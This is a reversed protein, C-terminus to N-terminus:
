QNNEAKDRLLRYEGARITLKTMDFYEMLPIIFKRSLGTLEKFSAPNAKEERILLGKYDNRLKQIVASHFFLDASIKVLLGEKLMVGLVNDIQAKRDAFKAMVEKVSPPTLAADLYVRALAGRLDEQEGSLDVAHGALRVHEREVVLGGGKEMDQMVLHFLKASVPRGLSNKLEEKQLGEKLPFKEHYLKTQSMIRAQLGKYLGFALARTEEKDILVAQKKAFMEALINKMMTQHLGTRVALQRMTIGTLGARALMVATREQDTGDRLVRFDDGTQELHRKHKVAQSDLIMGGGITTMPSYSRIVFRDRTMVVAPSELVLQAFANEGPELEDQDMLVVRTILESAGVHLRVLARNKLKKGAAPLYELSVDLRRSPSLTAPHALVDGRLIAAKEIGQLNVATRQGAEAEEVQRNHVQLGRVKAMIQGPLIAVEEGVRLSGSLLTGTVVTGFGKMTFVRDIPLRFIGNDYDDEIQDTVNSIAQLLEPLGEGNAASVPVLPASALFTGQLYERVDDTVLELWSPEVIDTKTLAVLGKKIGLLSCIHLHEKTQPMVGEDAAIVLVVMDIGGAGAVMHKIFREHGPVDVLGLLRGDPLTLSAFGLEITIGREKEEKLRDTDIGTLAKVLSTKGHDVHGATGLIIHKM